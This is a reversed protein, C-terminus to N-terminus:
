LPMLIAYNKYESNVPSDFISNHKLHVKIEYEKMYEGKEKLEKIYEDNDRQRRESEANIANQDSVDIDLFRYSAWGGRAMGKASDNTAFEDGQSNGTWAYINKLDHVGRLRKLTYTTFDNIM